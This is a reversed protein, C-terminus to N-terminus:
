DPQQPELGMVAGNKPFYAYPLHNAWPWEKITGPTTM